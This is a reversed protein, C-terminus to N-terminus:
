LKKREGCQPRVIFIDLMESDAKETARKLAKADM